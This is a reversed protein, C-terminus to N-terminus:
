TPEGKPPKPLPMWHTVNKWLFGLCKLPGYKLCPLKEEEYACYRCVCGTQISDVCVAIMQNDEPLEDKVSIWESM